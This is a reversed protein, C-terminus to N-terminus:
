MRNEGLIDNVVSMEGTSNTAIGFGDGGVVDESQWREVKEKNKSRMRRIFHDRMDTPPHIAEEGWALVLLLPLVQPGPVGTAAARSSTGLFSGSMELNSSRSQGRGLHDDTALLRIGLFPREHSGRVGLHHFTQLRCVCIEDERFYLRVVTKTPTDTEDNDVKMSYQPDSLVFKSSWVETKTKFDRKGELHYTADISWAQSPTPLKVSTKPHLVGKREKMELECCAVHWAQTLQFSGRQAVMETHVKEMHGMSTHMARGKHDTEFIDFRPAHDGHTLHTKIKYLLSM